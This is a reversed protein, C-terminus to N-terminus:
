QTLVINHFWVLLTALIKRIIRSIESDNWNRNPKKLYRYHDTHFQYRDIVVFCTFFGGSLLKQGSKDLSMPMRFRKEWFPSTLPKKQCRHTRVHWWRKPLFVKKADDSALIDEIVLDSGSGKVISAIMKERRRTAVRRISAAWSLFCVFQAGDIISPLLLKVFSLTLIHWWAM